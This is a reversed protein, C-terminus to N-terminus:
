GAIEGRVGSAQLQAEMRGLIGAARNRLLQHPEWGVFDRLLQVLEVTADLGALYGLAAFRRLAHKSFLNRRHRSMQDRVVFTGVAAALGIALLIVGITKWTRSRRM